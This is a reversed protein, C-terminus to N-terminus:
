THWSDCPYKVGVKKAGFEFIPYAGGLFILHFEKYTDIIRPGNKVKYLFCIEQTTDLFFGSCPNKQKHSPILKRGTMWHWKREHETGPWIEEQNKCGWFLWKRLISRPKLILLIAVEPQDPQLRNPAGVFLAKMEVLVSSASYCSCCM